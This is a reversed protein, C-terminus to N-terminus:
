PLLELAYIRPWRKGTVLLRRQQPDWAIGNLVNAPLVPTYLVGLQLWGTVRGSAPDIRAIRPQRWINAFLAGEIYELENLQDIPRGADRVTLRRIVRFSDPDIFRLTASGDSAILARGDYALGWGEGAFSFQAVPKLFPLRYVIGIGSRWTLQYLRQGIRALGEAFLTPALPQRALVKGTALDSLRIDSRGYLGASEFLKGNLYLLGQTFSATDHPYSAVVRFRMAPAAQQQRAALPPAWGLFVVLLIWV